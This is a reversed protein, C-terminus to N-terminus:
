PTLRGQGGPVVPLTIRSPYRSSHHITNRAVQTSTHQGIPEGTNPNVDFRPFSSAGVLVQLQHGEAFVNSTPYLQFTVEYVEGPELLQPRAMSDRYRLRMLGDCINLHYGDPWDESPPYVDLLMVFLDSDPADSSVHVTVNVPGTVETDRELPASTFSLTDGRESLRGYPPECGFLDERTRQDAGGQITIVRMLALPAALEIRDPTPVIENLSSTNSSITPMPHQPDFRLTSSGGDEPPTLDAALVGGPQFFYDTPVARTLPWAPEERWRGGHLLRGEITREGSGGGMVFLRVPPDGAFENEVGRLWHDFWRLMVDNRSATGAEAGLSRAIPAELGLDVEGSWHRELAADGHTWPGMMLAQHPIRASLWEYMEATSRTYSDYWGGSYMVPIDLHDDLHPEFNLGRTTRWYEDEDAHLYLDQAWQEYTPLGALPSNGETWPLRRLWDGMHITADTLARRLAPDRQAEPSTIGHSVAWTLWRLELAGHHRVATVNGNSGGENVWMARLHPPRELAAASQVWGPYSTGLTGVNGDCYPLSAVWEIADYGDPGENALLYFDGESAFRGRVDQIVGLYGRRAWYEGYAEGTNKLSKDYPTRLLVAPFPGPLAEGDRAPRWVDTALFVGDRVRVGANRVMIAGYQDTAPGPM